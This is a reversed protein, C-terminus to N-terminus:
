ERDLSTTSASLAYVSQVVARTSDTGGYGAATVGYLAQKGDASLGLYNVYLKPTDAYNIDTSGDKDYTGGGTVVKMNPPTYTQATTWGDPDGPNTLAAVCVRMNDVTSVTTIGTCTTGTAPVGNLLLWEGFALTNQAGQFAREKERTNGAIKEQLGFGRYMSVALLTLMVLIMLITILAFGAQGPRAAPAAAPSSPTSSM